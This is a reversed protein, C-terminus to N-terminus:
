RNPYKNILFQCSSISVKLVEGGCFKLILDCHKENKYLLEINQLMQTAWTDVKLFSPHQYSSSERTEPSHFDTKSNSVNDALSVNNQERQSLSVSDCSIDVVPFPIETYPQTHKLPIITEQNQHVTSNYSESLVHHQRHREEVSSCSSDLKDVEQPTSTLCGDERRSTLTTQGLNGVESRSVDGFVDPLKPFTPIPTSIATIASTNASLSLMSSTAPIGAVKAVPHLVPNHSHSVHPVTKTPIVSGLTNCGEKSCETDILQHHEGVILAPWGTEASTRLAKGDPFSPSQVYILCGKENRLAGDSDSVEAANHKQQNNIEECNTVQKDNSDCVTRETSDNILQKEEMAKNHGVATMNQADNSTKILIVNNTGVSQKTKRQNSLLGIKSLSAYTKKCRNRLCIEKNSAGIVSFTKNGEEVYSYKNSCRQKSAASMVRGCSQLQVDVTGQSGFNVIEGNGNRRRKSRSISIESAEIVQSTRDRLHESGRKRSLKHETAM